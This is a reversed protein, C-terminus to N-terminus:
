PVIQPEGGPTWLLDDVDHGYAVPHGGRLVLVAAGIERIADADNTVLLLSMAHEERRRQLADRAAVRVELDLNAYPEDGIFVKPDLVLARALAVRQRMGASLEYPYKAATGLPLQLEDLLAAVRVALARANVRRDRSTIPEGIIESVTLRSPLDGGAGQGLFGTVYRRVRLTRGGRRVSHGEVWADGGVVSLSDDDAGALVGALSSKGSGTAGMIALAGGPALDFSIGEVVRGVGNGRAISLDSARIAVDPAARRVM